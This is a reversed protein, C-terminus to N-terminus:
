FRAINARELFAAYVPAQKLDNETQRFREAIQYAQVRVPCKSPFSFPSETEDQEVKVFPARRAKM